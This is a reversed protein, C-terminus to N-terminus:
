VHLGCPCWVWLRGQTCVCMDLTSVCHDASVDSEVHFSVCLYTGMLGYVWLGLMYMLVYLIVIVRLCWVFVYVCFRCGCISVCGEVYFCLGIHLCM